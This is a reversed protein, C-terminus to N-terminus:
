PRAAGAADPQAGDCQTSDPRAAIRDLDAAPTEELFTTRAYTSRILRLNVERSYPRLASRIDGALDSMLDAILVPSACSFDLETMSLTRIAPHSRSRFHLRGRDIEYVISWQTRASSVDNLADFAYGVADSSEFQKVRVAARAFRAQSGADSPLWTTRDLFRLADAYFDNTLAAVPLGDGTHPVMRGGIFEITAVHGERDAILYHLPTDSQIRISSDSALVDAVTRATDLQYQIWELCGVAPRADPRPYRTGDVWMLEIVLGVENMGGSPTDRGYQNFTVSGYRSTWHARGSAARLGSARRVDRKNVMLLGDEINWDYNKGFVIRDGGRLCFTTCSGAPSGAAVICAALLVVSVPRSRIM